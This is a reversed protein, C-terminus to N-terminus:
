LQANQGCALLSTRAFRSVTGDILECRGDIDNADLVSTFDQDEPDKAMQALTNQLVKMSMVVHILPKSSSVSRGAGREVLNALAASRRQGVTRPYNHEQDESFLANQEDGLQQVFIGGTVPDLNATLKVRGDALTTVNLTKLADHDEPEPGDQDDVELWYACTTKFANWDLDQAWQVFLHQDRLLAASVRINDLKRVTDAHQRSLRGDLMADEIHNFSSAFRGVRLDARAAEPAINTRAALYQAMTRVGAKSAVGARDAETINIAILGDLQQRFEQLEITRAPSYTM